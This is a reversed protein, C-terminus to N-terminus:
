RQWDNVIRNAKGKKGLQTEKLVSEELAKISILQLPIKNAIEIIKNYDALAKDLEGNENAGNIDEELINIKNELRRRYMSTLRTASFLAERTEQLAVVSPTEMMEQYVVIAEKVYKDAKWDSPLDLFKRIKEERESEEVTLVFESNHHGMFHVFALEKTALRKKRGDNDGKSGKDRTLLYLFEKIMRAEPNFVPLDDELTILKM